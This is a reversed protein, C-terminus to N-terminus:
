SSILPYLIKKEVLGLEKSTENFDLGSIGRELAACPQNLASHALSLYGNRELGGSSKTRLTTEPNSLPDGAPAVLHCPVFGLSM